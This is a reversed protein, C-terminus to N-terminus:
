RKFMINFICGISVQFSRPNLAIDSWDDRVISSSRQETNRRNKSHGCVKSISPYMISSYTSHEKYCEMELHNPEGTQNELTGIPLPNFRSSKNMYAANKACINNSSSIQQSSTSKNGDLDPPDIFFESWDVIENDDKTENSLNPTSYSKLAKETFNPTLDFNLDYISALSSPTQCDTKELLNDCMM